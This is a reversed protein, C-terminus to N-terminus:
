IDSDAEWHFVIASGITTLAGATNNAVTFGDDGVQLTAGSNPGLDTGGSTSVQGTNNPNTYPRITVTPSTRKKAKFSVKGYTQSLAITNSPVVKNEIGVASLATGPAVSYGYSKEFYRQCLALEEAFSRPQFPLAVDGACLQVQAIDINGAGVFTEGTGGGFQSSATTTGWMVFFGIQFYDDNNTGFTKGTLTNTNITVTYKTWAATLTIIQGAINEAASPSGGTGYRQSLSIGIRKGAISSRAFFSLTLKKGSGCLYKTANEIRHFLGYSANIGFASGAGDPTIRYAYYSQSLESPTLTLRSHAVNAPLVGGDVAYSLLFRDALYAGFAPNNAVTGRQWVDFNGNIIAQAPLGGRANKLQSYDALQADAYAKAAAQAADAKAQAGTKTEGTSRVFTADSGSMLGSNGGTVANPIVDAGGTIHSSAHAGPTATGTATVTLTKTTPNTTVTIGTGGTVTLSDTMDVASIDNVQAFANQNVEAGDEIGALKTHEAASTHLDVNDMHTKAAELTTAPATRWSSKGTIGKIMNALWGLLTTLNGTNGTPATSDSITRDGIVSDTASGAGGAGATIGALKTKEALTTHLNGNSIHTDMTGKNTDTEIAVNNFATNINEFDESIKKTGTIGGYRSIAM